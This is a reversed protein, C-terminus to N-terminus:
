VRKKFSASAKKPMKITIQQRLTALLSSVQVKIGRHPYRLLDFLENLANEDELIYASVFTDNRASWSLAKLTTILAHDSISFRYDSIQKLFGGIIQTHDRLQM